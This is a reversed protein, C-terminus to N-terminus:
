EKLYKKKKEAIRISGNCRILGSKNGWLDKSHEKGKEKLRKKKKKESETQFTEIEIEEVEYVVEEIIDLITKMEDWSNNAETIISKTELYEM